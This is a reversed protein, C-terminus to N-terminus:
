HGKPYLRNKMYIIATNMTIFMVKGNIELFISWRCMNAIMPPRDDPTPLINDM